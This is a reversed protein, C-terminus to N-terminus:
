LADYRAEASGQIPPFMDRGKLGGELLPLRSEEKRWFRAEAPVRRGSGVFGLSPIGLRVGGGLSGAIPGLWWAVEGLKRGDFASDPKPEREQRARMRWQAGMELVGSAMGGGRDKAMPIWQQAFSEAVDYSLLDDRTVVVASEALRRERAIAFALNDAEEQALDEVVDALVNTDGEHLEIISKENGEKDGAEGDEAVNKGSNRRRSSKKRFTKAQLRRTIAARLRARGLIGLSSYQRVGTEM